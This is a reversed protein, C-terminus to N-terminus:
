DVTHTIQFILIWKEESHFLLCLLYLIFILPAVVLWLFCPTNTSIYEIVTNIWVKRKKMIFDIACIIFKIIWLLAFWWIAIVCTSLCIVAVPTTASLLFLLLVIIFKLM